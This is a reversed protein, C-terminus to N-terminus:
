IQMNICKPYKSTVSYGEQVSTVTSFNEFHTQSQFHVFITM